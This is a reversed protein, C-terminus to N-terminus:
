ILVVEREREGERVIFQADPRSTLLLGLTIFRRVLESVSTSHEEAVVKLRAYVDEPLDLNYRSRKAEATLAV